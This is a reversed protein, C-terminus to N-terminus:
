RSSTGKRDKLCFVAVVAAAAILTWWAKLAGVPLWYPDWFICFLFGLAALGIAAWLVARQKRNSQNGFVIGILRAVGTEKEDRETGM